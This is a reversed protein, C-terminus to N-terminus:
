PVSQRAAAPTGAPVTESRSRSWLRYAYYIAVVGVLSTAGLML